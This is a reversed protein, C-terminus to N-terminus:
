GIPAGEQSLRDLHVRIHAAEAPTGALAIARGFCVRAEAGRGLQELLVGKLGFFHFYGLLREGLPEIMALAQAPGRATATAVARNLTVVPSPAHAGLDRPTM